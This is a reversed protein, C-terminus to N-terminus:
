AERQSSSEVNERKGWKRAASYLPNLFDYWPSSNKWQLSMHLLPLDSTLGMMQKIVEPGAEDGYIIGVLSAAINVFKDEADNDAVIWRFESEDRWDHMKEFFLTRRFEDFHMEAYRDFGHQNIADMHATFDGGWDYAISRNVYLVEGRYVKSYFGFARVVAEDLRQRDFVLCVGTHNEAYQAWMRPKSWGRFFIDRIHDGSLPQQDRCFCAVKTNQKLARSLGESLDKANVKTLDSAGNTAPTFSWQKKEKPDNTKSISGLKLTRDKLIFDLATSKTTYHYVLRDPTQMGIILSTDQGNSVGSIPIMTSRIETGNM